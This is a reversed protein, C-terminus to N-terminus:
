KQFSKEVDEATGSCRCNIHEHLDGAGFIAYGYQANWLPLKDLLSASDPPVFYTNDM